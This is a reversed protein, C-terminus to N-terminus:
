KTFEFLADHLVGDHVNLHMAKCANAYSTPSKWNVQYYGDGLNQLGSAGAAVEELLDITMGVACSYTTVTIEASALDTIPAGASDLLRWKVPISQGAKVRNLVPLADIPQGFGVFDWAEVTIPPGPAIATTTGDVTLSVPASGALGVNEVTFSGDGNDAVSAAGGAPISVVTLGDGLVVVARGFTVAVTVSGCTGVTTTGADLLVTFGGACTLLEVQAGPVETGVTVVVGEAANPADAITVSLGNTAVISGSTAPTLSEDLFSGAPTGLPQLADDIGDGNADAPSPAPTSGPSPDPSPAPTSGPSPDPTPPASPAISPGPTMTPVPGITVTFDGSSLLDGPSPSTTCDVPGTTVPTDLWLTDTGPANDTISLLGYLGPDPLHVGITATTGSIFLCTGVGASTPNVGDSISFTGTPAATTGDTSLNLTVTTTGGGVSISGSGSVQGVASGTAARVDRLSGALGITLGVVAVM